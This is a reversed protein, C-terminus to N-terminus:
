HSSINSMGMFEAAVDQFRKSTMRLKCLTKFDLNSCVQTWIETPIEVAMKTLLVPTLQYQM